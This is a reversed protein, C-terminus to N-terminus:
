PKREVCHVARGMWRADMGLRECRRVLALNLALVVAIAAIAVIVTKTTESM